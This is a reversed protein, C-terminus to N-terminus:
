LNTRRRFYFRVKLYFACVFWRVICVSESQDLIAGRWVDRGGIKKTNKKELIFNKSASKPGSEM